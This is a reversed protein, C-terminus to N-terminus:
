AESGSHKTFEVYAANPNVGESSLIESTERTLRTSEQM